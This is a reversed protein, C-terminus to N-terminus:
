ETVNLVLTNSKASETGAEPEYRSVRKVDVVYKGARSLDFMDGLAIEDKIRLTSAACGELGAFLAPDVTKLVRLVLPQAM